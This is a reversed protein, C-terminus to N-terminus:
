LTGETECTHCKEQLIDTEVTNQQVSQKILPVLVPFNNRGQQCVANLLTVDSRQFSCGEASIVKLPRESKHSLAFMNAFHNYLYLHLM